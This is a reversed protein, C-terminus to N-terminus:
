EDAETAAFDAREFKILEPLGSATFQRGLEYVLDDGSDYQDLLDDRLDSSVADANVAAAAVNAIWRAFKEAGAQTFTLNLTSM